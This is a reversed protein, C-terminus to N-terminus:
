KSDDNGLKGMKRLRKIVENRNVYLDKGELVQQAEKDTLFGKTAQKFLNDFFPKDNRIGAEQEHGKGSQGGSYDHFMMFTNEEVIIKQGHLAILPAMSYVPGSLCTFITGACAQMANILDIGTHCYGGFNNLYIIFNDLESANRLINFVDRYNRQEAIEQTLYISYVNTVIPNNIIYVSDNDVIPKSGSDDADRKRPHKIAERIKRIDMM